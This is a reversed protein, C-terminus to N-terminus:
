RLGHTCAVGVAKKIEDRRKETLGHASNVAKNKQQGSNTSEYTRLNTSEYIRSDRTQSDRIM